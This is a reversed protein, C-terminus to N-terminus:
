SFGHSWCFTSVDAVKDKVRWISLHGVEFSFTHNQRQKSREEEEERGKGGRGRHRRRSRNNSSEEELRCFSRNGDQLHSAACVSSVQSTRWTSSEDASSSSPRQPPAPPPSAGALTSLLCSADAVDVLIQWLPHLSPHVLLISALSFTLQISPHISISFILSVVFSRSCESSFLSTRSPCHRSMQWRSCFYIYFRGCLNM